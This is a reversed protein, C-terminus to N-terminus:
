KAVATTLPLFGAVTEELAQQPTSTGDSVKQWAANFRKNNTGNYSPYAKAYPMVLNIMGSIAPNDRVYASSIVARRPPIFFMTQNYDILNQPETVLKIFDFALEPHKSKSAIALWDTYAAAVQAKQKMPPAVKVADALDPQAKITSRALSSSAYQMAYGGAAFGGKSPSGFNHMRKYLNLYYDAAELGETTNFRPESGDDSVFTGGNQWLLPLWFQFDAAPVYLGEQSSKGQGDSQTLKVATNLVEDWTIPPKSGDLGAQEFLDARYILSRPATLYPVGYDHGHWVVSAWSGPFFDSKGSWSSTFNDINLALGQEAMLGRWEAGPQFIDPPDGAAFAVILDNYFTGWSVYKMNVKVGPHAAEFEPVLKNNLLGQTDTNFDDLWVTLTTDAAGAVAAIGLWSACLASVVLAGRRRRKGVAGM